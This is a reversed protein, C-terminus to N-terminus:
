EATAPETGEAPTEATGRSESPTEPTGVPSETAETTEEAAEEGEEASVQQRIEKIAQLLNRLSAKSEKAKERFTQQLERAQELAEPSSKADLWAAKADAQAVKLEEVSERYKALLEGLGAVAAGQEELKTIQAEARDGYRIYIGVLNDQKSNTLQAVIWRQEKRVTHWLDKLERIQTRLGENTMSDALAELEAKKEQLQTELEAIRQLADQKEEESLVKSNDVLNQLKELSREILEITKVLHERVGKKLDLKKDRCDESEDKCRAKERLEQLQEKKERLAERAELYLDKKERLQERIEKVRERVQDIDKDKIRLRRAREAGDEGGTGTDEGSREVSGEGSNERRDEETETDEGSREVSGEGSNERRDEREEGNREAFAVPVISMIFLALVALAAMRKCLTKM